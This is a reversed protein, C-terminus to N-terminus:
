GEFCRRALDLAVAEVPSAISVRVGREVADHHNTEAPVLCGPLVHLSPHFLALGLSLDNATELAVDRALDVFNQPGHLLFGESRSGLM